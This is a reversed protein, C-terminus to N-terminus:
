YPLLLVTFPLLDGEPLRSNPSECAELVTSKVGDVTSVM